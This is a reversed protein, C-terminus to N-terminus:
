KHTLDSVMQNINKRMPCNKENCCCCSKTCKGSKKAKHEKVKILIMPTILIGMIIFMLIFDFLGM